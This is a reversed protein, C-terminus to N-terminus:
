DRLAQRLLRGVLILATLTAISSWVPLPLVLVQVLAARTLNILRAPVPVVGASLADVLHPDSSSLEREIRALIELERPTLHESGDAGFPVSPM